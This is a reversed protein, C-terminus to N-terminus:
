IDGVGQWGARSDTSLERPATTALRDDIWEGVREDVVGLDPRCRSDTAHALILPHGIRV